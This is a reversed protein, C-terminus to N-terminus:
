FPLDDDANDNAEVITSTSPQDEQDPQSPTSPSMPAEDEASPFYNSNTSSSGGGKKSDIIRFYSAVVETTKRNKGDQDQWVRHSLKGEVYIAMGKKLSSEAREALVRWVVIDHWETQQQWEGSKDRYNENTAIPFKAVVVGNELRRVEPDKGLNGLLLVRNVM